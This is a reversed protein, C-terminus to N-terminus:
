VTRWDERPKLGLLKSISKTTLESRPENTGNICAKLGQHVTIGSRVRKGGGWHGGFVLHAPGHLRFGHMKTNQSGM